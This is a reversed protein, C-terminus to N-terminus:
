CRQGYRSTRPASAVLTTAARPWLYIAYSTSRSLFSAPAVLRPLIGKSWFSTGWESGLGGLLKRGVWASSPSVWPKIVGQPLLLSFHRQKDPQSLGPM